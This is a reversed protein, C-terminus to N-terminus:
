DKYAAEAELEAPLVTKAMRKAFYYVRKLKEIIDMEVSYAAIRNPADAVLRQAQKGNLLIGNSTFGVHGAKEKALRFMDWFRPHLLPEGWGQLYVWNVGSFHPALGDRYLEWSFDGRVWQDGLVCNPCFACKLQCRTTVEVQLVSLPAQNAEFKGFLHQLFEFM